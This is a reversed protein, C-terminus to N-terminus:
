NNAGARVEAGHRGVWERSVGRGESNKKPGCSTKVSVGRFDHNVENEVRKDHEGKTKDACSMWHAVEENYM